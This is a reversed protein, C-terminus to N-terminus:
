RVLTMKRIDIADGASLKYFYVGSSLEQGGDNRSNWVVSYRGQQQFDNVLTRVRQGLVNYIELTVQASEPIYYEITTAPNFPNPYNQYLTFKVPLEPRVPDDVSVVETLFRVNDIVFDVDYYTRHPGWDIAVIDTADFPPDFEETGYSPWFDEFNIQIEQWEDTYHFIFKAFEYGRETEAKRERIRIGASDAQTGKVRFSIAKFNSIDVPEFDPNMLTEVGAWNSYQGHVRLAYDSEFGPTVREFALTGALGGTLQWPAGWNNIFEDGEFDDLMPEIEGSRVWRQIVAGDFLAIYATDGNLSFGVGRPGWLENPLEGTLTERELTAMNYIYINDNYRGDQWECVWLRGDRDFNLGNTHGMFPGPLSDVLAYETGDESYFHQVASHWLSGMYVDRGDPSVEIARSWVTISETVVGVSDFDADLIWLPVEGTVGSVYIRGNQDVGAKTVSKPFQRFNMGTGDQANIKFLRSGMSLIINGEHDTNVGVNGRAINHTTGDITVEFIPSFSLHTGDPRVAHIGVSDSFSAYWINGSHDVTVGHPSSITDFDEVYTYPWDLKGQGFVLATTLVGLVAIM